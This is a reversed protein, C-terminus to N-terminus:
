SEPTCATRTETTGGMASCQSKSKERSSCPHIGSFWMAVKDATSNFTDLKVVIYVPGNGTYLHYDYAAYIDLPGGVDGDKIWEAEWADAITQAGKTAFETRLDGTGPLGLFKVAAARNFDFHGQAEMFWGDNPYQNKPFTSSFDAASVGYHTNAYHTGARIDTNYEQSTLYTFYMSMNVWGGPANQPNPGGKMIPLMWPDAPASGDGTALGTINEAVMKLTYFSHTTWRAKDYKPLGSKLNASYPDYSVVCPYVDKVITDNYNTNRPGFWENVGMKTHDHRGLKSYDTSKLYSAGIDYIEYVVKRAGGLEIKAAMEDGPAAPGKKALPALMAFASVVMIAVIAFAALQRIFAHERARPRREDGVHSVSGDGWTVALGSDSADYRVISV